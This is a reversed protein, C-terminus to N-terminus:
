HKVSKHRDHNGMILIKFGKLRDLIEKSNYFGFDGLVFVKDIRGVVSNWNEILKENMEEVNKFPRNEYEIIKNHNFHTDAIFFIKIM